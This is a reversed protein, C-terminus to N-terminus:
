EGTAEAFRQVITENSPNKQTKVQRMHCRTIQCKEFHIKVIVNDTPQTAFPHIDRDPIYRCRRRCIQM